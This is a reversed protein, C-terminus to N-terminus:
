EKPFRDSDYYKLRNYNCATHLKDVPELGIFSLDCYYDLLWWKICFHLYKVFLSTFKLQVLEFNALFNCPGEM